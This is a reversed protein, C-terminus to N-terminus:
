RSPLPLTALREMRRAAVGLGRLVVRVITEEYKGRGRGEVVTRMAALTTGLVLDLAAQESEYRLEGRREGDRLDALVHRTLVESWRASAAGVRLFARAWDRDEQARRIFAKVGISVRRAGDEIDRYLEAIEESMEGAVSGAVAEFLEERSRFYNYVTGHVVGAEDAVDVFAIESADRRTLLRQAADILQARTRERKAPRGTREAVTPLRRAVRGLQLV